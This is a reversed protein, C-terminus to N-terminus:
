TVFMGAALQLHPPLTGSPLSVDMGAAEAAEVVSPLPQLLM